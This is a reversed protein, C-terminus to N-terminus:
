VLTSRIKSVAHASFFVFRGWRPDSRKIIKSNKEMALRIEPYRFYLDEEDFLNFAINPAQPSLLNFYKFKMERPYCLLITHHGFRGTSIVCKPKILHFISKWFNISKFQLFNNREKDVRSLEWPIANSVGFESLKSGPFGSLMAIKLFGNDWDEVGIQEDSEVCTVRSNGLRFIMNEDSVDLLSQRYEKDGNNRTNIKQTTGLVLIKNWKDPIYPAYPFRDYAPPEDHYSEWEKELIGHDRCIQWIKKRIDNDM